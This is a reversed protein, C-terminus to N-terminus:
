LMIVSKRIRWLMADAWLSDGPLQYRCNGKPNPHFLTLSDATYQVTGRESLYFLKNGLVANIVALPDWMKQGTNCDCNMYVQKIPHIDTWSIDEIVQEPKYEIADGVEGPSFIIDVDTPWLRFFDKSFTYAQSFNYDSEASEGFVGGMVYACRVKWRVLEVGNLPSFNDAESKLLQALSTVFGISVISVSHDPQAALLQRYLKWGDPLASYDSVVREFMYTGDPNRYEPLGSYDIWVKPNEVGARELGIPIDHHGFYTNMVDAIAANQEGMRDVVIGLIECRKQERYRYLMQMAFLDDTFSGLDVDLIIQPVGQYGLPEIQEDSCSPLLSICIVVLCLRTFLRKM